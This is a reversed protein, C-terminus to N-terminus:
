CVAVISFGAAVREGTALSDLFVDVTQPKEAEPPVHVDGVVKNTFEDDPTAVVACKDVPREFTVHYPSKGLDEVRTVGHGAEIVGETEIQAWMVNTPTGNSGPTGTPGVAGQAGAGGKPGAPGAPGQQSWAVPKQGHKCHGGSKLLAMAGNAGVCATLQGTTSAFGGSAAYSVGGLAVFLALVGIANNGLYRLMGRAM